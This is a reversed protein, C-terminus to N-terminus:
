DYDRRLREELVALTEDMIIPVKNALAKQKIDKFKISDMIIMEGRGYTNYM